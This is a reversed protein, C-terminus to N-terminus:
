HWAAYQADAKSGVLCMKLSQAQAPKFLKAELRSQIYRGTCDRYDGVTASTKACLKLNTVANAGPILGGPSSVPVSTNCDLLSLNGRNVGWGIDMFLAPTLDLDAQAIVTSSASPAMLPTPLLNQDFHSFTSGPLFGPPANIKARRIAAGAPDAGDALVGALRRDAYPGIGGAALGQLNARLQKGFAQPVLISPITVQDSGNGTGMLGVTSGGNDAIIAAVAGAQQAYLVKQSFNCSGRDILAIRQTLAAANTFPQCGDTHVVNGADTYVAQVVAGTFAAATAPSGFDAIVFASYGAAAAPATIQFAPEPKLKIPVEATVQPGTWVLHDGIRAAAREANSMANWDAGGASRVFRNYINSPDAATRDTASNGAFGLGHGIEHTVVDLFNTQGKPTRGDLGYYWGKAAGGVDIDTTFESHIDDSQPNNDVGRLSNALAKSYWTNPLPANAFDRFTYIAYAQGLIDNGASNKGLSKFSAQVRIPVASNLLAGYMNLAFQYVLRRQEGLTAGPNGGVPAAATLDNLGAGAPDQNVLVLEASQAAQIGYLLALIGACHILRKM